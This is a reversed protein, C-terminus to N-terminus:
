RRRERVVSQGIFGHWDCLLLAAADEFPARPVKEFPHDDDGKRHEGCCSQRKGALLSWRAAPKALPMPGGGNGTM